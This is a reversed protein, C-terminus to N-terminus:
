TGIFYVTFTDLSSVGHSCCRGECIQLLRRIAANLPIYFNKPEVERHLRLTCLLLASVPDLNGNVSLVTRM